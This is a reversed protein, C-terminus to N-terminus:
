SVNAYATCVTNSCRMSMCIWMFNYEQNGQRVLKSVNVTIMVLDIASELDLFVM